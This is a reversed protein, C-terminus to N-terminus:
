SSIVYNLIRFYKPKKRNNKTRKNNNKRKVYLYVFYTEFVLLAMLRQLIHHFYRKSVRSSNFNTNSNSRCVFHFMEVSIEVKKEKEIGNFNEVARKKLCLRLHFLSETVWM